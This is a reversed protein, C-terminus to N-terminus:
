KDGAAAAGAGAVVAAAPSVEASKERRRRLKEVERHCNSHLGPSFTPSSAPRYEAELEGSRYRVGCANCLTGSGEPGVRWQPTKETGCHRCRRRSAAPARPAAARAAPEEGGGDPAAAPGGGGVRGQEVAVAEGGGGSQRLPPPTRPPSLELVRRRRRTRVRKTQPRAWAPPMDKAAPFADNNSPSELAEKGEEGVGAAAAAPPFKAPRRYLEVRNHWDFRLAPSFTPSSAPPQVPPVMSMSGSRYRAGCADCLRSRGEPGGLWQLTKETGFQQCPRETAAAAPALPAASNFGGDAPVAARGQDGAECGGVGDDGDVAAGAGGQNSSPPPPSWAVTPWVVVKRPRRMGETRPRRVGDTRPRAAAAAAMMQVALFEGKNSLRELKGDGKEEGNVAAALSAGAAAERRLRLEVVRSHLNSHVKPSFTPSSAPRYEPVLRGSRYRVGCANCLTCPGEPGARWQPTEETGCHRCRRWAAPAQPLTWPVESRPRPVGKASPAMTEVAPFADKNSLWELEEEGEAGGGTAKVELAAHDFFVQLDAGGGFLDDAVAAASDGPLADVVVM